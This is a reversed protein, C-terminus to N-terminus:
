YYILLSSVRRLDVIEQASKERFVNLFTIEFLYSVRTKVLAGPKNFCALFAATFAATLANSQCRNIPPVSQSGRTPTLNNKLISIQLTACKACMVLLDYTIGLQIKENQETRAALLIIHPQEM